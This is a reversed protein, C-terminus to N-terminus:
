GGPWCRNCMWRGGNSGNRENKGDRALGAAWSSALDAEEPYPFDARLPLEYAGARLTRTSWRMAM